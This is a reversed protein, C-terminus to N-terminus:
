EPSISHMDNNRREIENKVVRIKQAIIAMDKYGQQLLWVVAEENNDAALAMKEMIDYGYKRLWLRANQNGEAGNILAMLHPYGNDMLWERADKKHHLAFVFIGLEPYGNETLWDRIQKNGGIAEGWALIIKSSYEINNAM